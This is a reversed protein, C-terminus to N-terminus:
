IQVAWIRRRGDDGCFGAPLPMGDVHALLSMCRLGSEESVSVLQGMTFVGPAAGPSGDENPAVMVQELNDDVLVYGCWACLQRQHNGVRVPFGVIHIKM